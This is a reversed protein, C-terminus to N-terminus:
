PARVFSFFDNKASFDAKLVGVVQQRSKTCSNKKYICVYVYVYINKFGAFELM